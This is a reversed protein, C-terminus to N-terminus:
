GDSDEDLMLTPMQVFDDLQSSTYLQAMADYWSLGDTKRLLGYNVGDMNTRWDDEAPSWEWGYDSAIRTLDVYYGNPIDRRVRGGQSDNPNSSMFDWPLHKLPKGLQGQQADDTVRLYVRWYTDVGIHEPVVEIMPPVGAIADRMMAIGRGAKHWSQQDEAPQPLRDIQWFMDDLRGLFDRGSADYVAGRMAHFSDDVADSLLADSAEVDVLPNLKYLAGDASSSVTEVYLPDAVGLPLGGTNLLSTPLVGRVWDPYMAGTTVSILETAVGSRMAIFSAQRDESDVMFVLGQVDDISVWAPTRGFGIVDASTATGTLQQVWVMDHRLESASFALADGASSWAPNDENRTPTNTINVTESTDLNFVYIDQNGDRLSVFAIHRGDPSWAPAYDASAHETIRIPVDSGDIPVAYIDLNGGQYSEYALWMGDPSWIPNDQYALDYTVRQTEERELDYVYIEWNGDKNSAYALRMTGTDAPSWAPNTEDATYNTIRIAERSAVDLAWIDDQGRERAVYAVVGGVQVINPAPTATPSSALWISSPSSQRTFIPEDPTTAWLLVGIV